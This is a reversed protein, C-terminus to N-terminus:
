LMMGKQKSIIKVKHGLRKEIEEITMEHAKEKILEITFLNNKEDPAIDFSITNHYGGPSPKIFKVKGSKGVGYEETFEINELFFNFKIKDVHGKYYGSDNEYEFDMRLYYNDDEKYLELHTIQNITM